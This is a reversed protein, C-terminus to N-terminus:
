LLKEAPARPADAEVLFRIIRTGKRERATVLVLPRGQADVLGSEPPAPTASVIDLDLRQAGSISLRAGVDFAHELPQIPAAAPQVAKPRATNLWYAEDGVTQTGTVTHTAAADYGASIWRDSGLTALGGVATASILALGALRMM